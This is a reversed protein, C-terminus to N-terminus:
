FMEKLKRQVGRVASTPTAVWDGGGIGLKRAKGGPAQAVRFTLVPGDFPASQHLSDGQVELWHAGDLTLAAVQDLPVGFIPPSQPEPESNLVAIVMAARLALLVEQGDGHRDKIIGGNGAVVIDAMAVANPVDAVVQSTRDATNAEPVFLISRPDM